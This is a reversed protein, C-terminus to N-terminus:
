QGLLIADVGGIRDEAYHCEVQARDDSAEGDASESVFATRRKSRFM